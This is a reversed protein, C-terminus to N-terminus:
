STIHKSKWQFEYYIWIEMLTFFSILPILGYFSFTFYLILNIIGYAMFFVILLRVHTAYNRKIKNYPLYFTKLLELKNPRKFYWNLIKKMFLWPLLGLYCIPSPNFRSPSGSEPMLLWQPIRWIEFAIVLLSLSVFMGIVFSLDSVTAKHPDENPFEKEM